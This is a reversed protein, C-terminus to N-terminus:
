IYTHVNDKNGRNENKLSEMEKHMSTLTTKYQEQMFDLDEPSLVKTSNLEPLRTVALSSSSSRLVSNPTTQSLTMNRGTSPSSLLAVASPSSSQTTPKTTSNNNSGTYKSISPRHLPIRAWSPLTEM